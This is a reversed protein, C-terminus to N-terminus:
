STETTGTSLLMCNINDMCFQVNEKLATEQALSISDLNDYKHLAITCNNIYM